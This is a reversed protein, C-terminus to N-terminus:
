WVEADVSVNDEFIDRGWPVLYCSLRRDKGRKIVFSGLLRDKGEGEENMGEKAMFNVQRSDVLALWPCSLSFLKVRIGESELVRGPNARNISDGAASSGYEM